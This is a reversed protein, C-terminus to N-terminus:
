VEESDTMDEYTPKSTPFYSFVGWLKLPIIIGTEQFYISNDEVTPNKVQIKPTGYVMKGAEQIMLPPNPNNTMSTVHLADRIVLIYTMM